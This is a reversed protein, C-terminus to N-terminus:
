PQGGNADVRDGIRKLRQGAQVAFISAERTGTEADVECLEDFDLQAARVSARQITSLRGDEAVETFTADMRQKPQKAM